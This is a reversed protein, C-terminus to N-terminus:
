VVRTSSRRDCAIPSFRQQCRRKYFCSLSSEITLRASV